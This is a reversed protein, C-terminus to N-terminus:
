APAGLAHKPDIRVTTPDFGRGRRGGTSLITVTLLRDIILRRNALPTDTWAQVPDAANVLDALPDDSVNASLAADIENLRATGALTAATVQEATRRGLVEEAAMRKLADKIAAREARLGAADIEPGAPALLEYARPHTLAYVVHADVWADVHAANRTLHNHDRCRYRPARGAMTVKCPVPRDTDTGPPTCIGCRYICSGQWRPPAGPATQRSPDTLKDTVADFVERAVIPQWPASIGDLIEGQYVVLGANRPRLLVGRLTEASWPVGTATPVARQRLEAALGRLSVGQLVRQSCDAIVETEAEIPTIGAQCDRGGHWRCPHDESSAGPPVDPPGACFGFPRRGGGFEGNLAQRLRAASV